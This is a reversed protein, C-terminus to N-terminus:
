RGKYGEAEAQLQGLTEDSLAFWEGRRRQRMFREHMQRELKAPEETLFVAVLEFGRPISTRHEHLRRAVDSAYGIKVWGQARILYVGPQKLTWDMAEPPHVRAYENIVKHGITIVEFFRADSRILAQTLACVAVILYAIILCLMAVVWLM